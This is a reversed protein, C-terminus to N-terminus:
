DVAKEKKQRQTKRYRLFAPIMHDIIRYRMGPFPKLVTYFLHFAGLFTEWGEEEPTDAWPTMALYTRYQERYPHHNGKRWPREEGLFHLIEPNKVYAEYEAESFYPAPEQLKKLMRYPYFWYINYYNYCPPLLYIEGALAGNIADQDPASIISQKEKYYELIREGAHSNRWANLDVLLVGSNIYPSTGLSLNERRARTATPEASGALTYGTLDTKWLESIDGVVLTDADLYLVRDLDRPLLHGMLLRALVIENWGTTDVSFGITNLFGNLEIYHIKRGYPVVLAELKSRNEASIQLGGVYFCIEDAEPNNQCVSVIGAALQPVFADNVTYFLNM